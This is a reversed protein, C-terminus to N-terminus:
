RVINVTGTIVGKLETKITFMYAGEPLPKGQSTGDWDNNYDPSSFVMKGWRNYVKVECRGMEEKGPIEWLDNIGDGNPTFLYLIDKHSTTVSVSAFAEAALYNINGANYARIQATGRAIGTLINGNVTAIAPSLSEFLVELGSTSSAALTADTGVTVSSPLVDFTIVQTIPTITLEGDIFFFDYSNDSGGSFTIPYVGADSNRTATTRIEPMIDIVAATEDNVFGTITFPLTPVPDLYSKSFSTATFTLIAKSVNLIQTVPGAPNYNNDGAQTATVETFGGGTIQIVNGTIVGVAPNSSSFSVPLGSTSNASLTLGPDGYSVVPLPFFSIVQDAKNVTLNQHVPTAASYYENGPQTATITATGAGTIHILGGSIVAVATNSSALEAPLGSTATVAPSFAADGYTKVPLPSFTIVNDAKAVTLPRSFSAPAYIGNGPQIATIVLSGVGVFRLKHLVVTAVSQDSSSYEIVGGGSAIAGPVYDPDKYKKQSMPPFTITQALLSAPEDIFSPLLGGTTASVDGQTYSVTVTESGSLPAALTLQITRNDGEKLQLATVAVPSGNVLVTFQAERGAPNNMPRDFQVEVGSSRAALLVNPVGPPTVNICILAPPSDGKGDTVIFSFSGKNNGASGGAMYIVQLSDDTVTAPVSAIVAGRAGNSVQYLQGEAPLATITASAPSGDGGTYQLKILREKGQEVWLTRPVAALPPTLSTQFSSIECWSVGSANTAFVGWYLTTDPPLGTVEYSLNNGANHVMADSFDPYGSIFLTYFAANVAAEWEFIHSSGIIAGRAPSVLGTIGPEPLAYNKTLFIESYLADDDIVYDPSSPTVPTFTVALGTSVAGPNDFAYQFGATGSGNEIGITASGGGSRASFPDVILRYQVQIRNTSEYLIVQFSGLQSSPSYFGINRFQIICKRNPSAGITTYMISGFEDVALNDWFPAIYNNPAAPAPIAVNATATSGAGFTILGSTSIFFQTQEVGFFSFTFGINFPGFSKKYSYGEVAVTGQYLDEARATFLLAPQLFIFAIIFLRKMILCISIHLISM